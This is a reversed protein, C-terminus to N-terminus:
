SDWVPAFPPDTIRQKNNNLRFLQNHDEEDLEFDFIQMNELIHGRKESKFIVVVNKQDVLWKLTIQSPTKKYKKAINIIQQIQNVKGRMLPSYATLFMDSSQNIYGLLTKQSLLPHYEVQNNIVEPCIQKAKKFLPLPFNSVGIFRLKKEKQLERMAGLSESLEVEPNPWHILLLDVYDTQLKVLSKQLSKKIGKEDLCDLWLKTTLFIEERPISSNKVAEGVEAENEYIAATDIHRIGAKLAYQIISVGSEGKLGYVGFGLKPITLSSEQSEGMKSHPWYKM